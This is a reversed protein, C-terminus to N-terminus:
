RALNKFESIMRKWSDKNKAFNTIESITLKIKKEKTLYESIQEIYKTSPRGIKNCDRVKSQYLAYINVPEDPPMRLCHGIFNIAKETNRRLCTKTKSIQEDNTM